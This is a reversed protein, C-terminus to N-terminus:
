ARSACLHGDEFCDDTTNLAQRQALLHLDRAVDVAEAGVHLTFTDGDEPAGVTHEVFGVSFGELLGHAIGALDFRM